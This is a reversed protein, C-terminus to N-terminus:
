KQKESIKSEGAFMQQQKQQKQRPQQQSVCKPRYVHFQLVSHSMLRSSLM